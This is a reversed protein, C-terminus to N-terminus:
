LCEQGRRRCPCWSRSLESAAFLLFTIQGFFSWCCNESDNNSLPWIRGSSRGAAIRRCFLWITNGSWSLTKLQWWRIARRRGRSGARRPVCCDTREETFLSSTFAASYLPSTGQSRCLQHFNGRWEILKLVTFLQLPSYTCTSRYSLAIWFKVLSMIRPICHKLIQAFVKDQSQILLSKNRRFLIYVSTLTKVHQRDQIDTDSYM